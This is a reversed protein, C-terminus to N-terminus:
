TIISGLLLVFWNGEHAVTFYMTIEISGFLCKAFNLMGENYFMGAVKRISQVCRLLILSYM